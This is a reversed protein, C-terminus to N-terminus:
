TRRATGVYMEGLVRPMQPMVFRDLGSITLRAQHILHDIPRNINCGVAIVKQLPNLLDQRRAVRHDDSRGHELFIYIGGRKLVRRIGELAERVDRISCLTFTTIVSDFSCDEFPLVGSADLKVQTVKLGSQAIRREVRGPLMRDSDIAVLEEVQPSYHPLNLGTGFGVELVRGRAEALAKSRIRQVSTAGLSRDLIRPFIHRAYLGV